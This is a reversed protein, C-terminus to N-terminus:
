KKGHNLWALRRSSLISKENNSALVNVTSDIM